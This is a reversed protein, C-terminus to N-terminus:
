WKAAVVKNEITVKGTSYSALLRKAQNSFLLISVGWSCAPALSRFCHWFTHQLQKLILQLTAKNYKLKYPLFFLSIVEKIYYMDFGFGIKISNPNKKLNRLKWKEWLQIQWWNKNLYIFLKQGLYAKLRKIKTNLLHM